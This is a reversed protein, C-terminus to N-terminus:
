RVAWEGVGEEKMYSQYIVKKQNLVKPVNYKGVITRRGEKGLQEILGRNNALVQMKRSFEIVEDKSILWGNVDHDILERHGRNEVAIIPLECAMAEMINVPLGERLSSGVGVDSISLLQKMDRRFGLFDVKSQIEMQEAMKKCDALGAGEGALLLRANPIKNKVLNFAHLLFQQNKNANFEAPYIFLFDDPRYGYSKRLAIKEKYPVPKFEESDVGVGHVLEISAAKLKRQALHYDEENITILSDTLHALVKEVPYYMLWNMLPAGKCFHFGHATYIVKAGHKRAKISALRTLAGGMPTHCHIINYQNDDIIKKLQRYAKMNKKDMPSRQIPINYKQDVYPLEIEGSAAVHVDWGQEKFWKLYPLHFAKFHYDVTASFLVKQVM